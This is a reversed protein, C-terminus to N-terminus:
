GLEESDSFTIKPIDKCGEIEFLVITNDGKKLLPKPLYLTKQPGIEWYRGLNFGNILINGKRFNDFRVFTDNPEDVNFVGRYFGPADNVSNDYKITSVDELTIPYMKWNFHYRNGLRVGRIIGKPEMIHPGYNVRGLNEVLIDLKVSENEKLELSVKKNDAYFGYKGVVKNNIFIIARDYLGDISLELPEIPGEILTSYNVFGTDVGLQEFTKPTVSEIYSEDSLVSFLDTYDKLEVDGYKVKKSNCVDDPLLIDFKDEIVKKVAFYKDTLDGCESIPSNYDYSTVTPAYEADYNAGNTFGFNTGGHFMYFNVSGNLDLIRKFTDATDLSARKHHENGWHDFWGNWYEMCMFPQDKRFRQLVEKAEEPRSGFNVTALVNPIIGGSLMSAEPGDSTFLICDIDSSIYFDRLISLYTKDDGYSGYENEIQMAIINGGNSALRSRAIEFVKSLYIKEYKLFTENFCRIELDKENILWAPLGGNNIEACIYPGPRLIVNLGLDAATDIFKGLDLIGAFDFVGKKKEHLNWCVYTEVTNFGCSKLKKLRDYWYEPVVRFYHIAGSLITYPKGNLYFADNKYSLSCM